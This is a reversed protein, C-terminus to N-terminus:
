VLMPFYLSWKITLKKLSQSFENSCGTATQLFYFIEKWFLESVLLNHQSTSARRFSFPNVFMDTEKLLKIENM